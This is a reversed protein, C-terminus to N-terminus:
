IGLSQFMDESSDFKEIRGARKDAQFRVYSSRKSPTLKEVLIGLEQLYSMLAKGSRTNENLTIAYTAM